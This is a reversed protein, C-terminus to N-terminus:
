TRPHRVAPRVTQLASKRAAVAAVFRRGGPAQAQRNPPRPSDGRPGCWRRACRPSRPKVGDPDRVVARGPAAAHGSRERGARRRRPAARMAPTEAATYIMDFLRQGPKFHAPQWFGDDGQMGSASAQVVLAGDPAESPDSMVRVKAEPAIRAAEDAVAEARSLTRNWLWLSRCGTAAATLAASRGAGGCGLVAVDAGRLGTDFAEQVAMRLGYGDTSHGVMGEPTFQVTNVGGVLRASEDHRAIGQFAVQKHPITLNVGGFGLAALSDLAALVKEAPIDLAVYVADMGLARFATNHMAPSLSHRVPHGLVAFVRTHPTIAHPSPEM